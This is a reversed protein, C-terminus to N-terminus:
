KNVKENIFKIADKYSMLVGDVELAPANKMGKSLMVNVDTNIQYSIGNENLKKELVQCKPCGTSYLIIELEIV